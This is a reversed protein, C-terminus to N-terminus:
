RQANLARMTIGYHPAATELDLDGIANQIERHGDGENQILSSILPLIKKLGMGQREWHSIGMGM